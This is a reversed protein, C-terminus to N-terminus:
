RSYTYIPANSKQCKGDIRCKYYAKGSQIKYPKTKFNAEITNKLVNEDANKCIFGWQVRTRQKKVSENRETTSNPKHVNVSNFDHSLEFAMTNSSETNSLKFVLVLIKIVVKIIEKCNKALRFLLNM